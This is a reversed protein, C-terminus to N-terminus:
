RPKRGLVRGLGRIESPRQAGVRLLRMVPADAIGGVRGIEDAHARIVVVTSVIAQHPHPAVGAVIREPPSPQAAGGPLWSEGMLALQGNKCM